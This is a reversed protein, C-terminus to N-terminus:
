VLQGILIHRFSPVQLYEKNVWVKLATTCLSLKNSEYLVECLLMFDMECKIIDSFQVASVIYSPM